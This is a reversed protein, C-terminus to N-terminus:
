RWYTKTLLFGGQNPDPVFWAEIQPWVEAFEAPTVRVLEALTEVTGALRGGQCWAHMHLQFLAGYRRADLHESDELWREVHWPMPKCAQPGLAMNSCIECLAREKPPVAARRLREAIHAASNEVRCFTKDTRPDIMHVRYRMKREQWAYLTPTVHNTAETM